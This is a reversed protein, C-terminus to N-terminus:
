RWMLAKCAKRGVRDVAAVAVRAAFIRQGSEVAREGFQDAIKQWYAVLFAGIMSDSSFQYGSARLSAEPLLAASVPGAPFISNLLLGPAPM